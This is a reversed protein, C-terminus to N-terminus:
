FSINIKKNGKESSAAGKPFRYIIGFSYQLYNSTANVMRFKAISQFNLGIYPQIWINFGAGFNNTPTDKIGQVYSRQTYGYGYLIYPDFYNFFTSRSIDADDRKIGKVLDHVLYYFKYLDYKLSLDFSLFLSNSSTVNPIEAGNILTGNVYKNYCVAADLSIGHGLYRAGHITSPMPVLLLNSFPSTRGNDEVANMGLGVAWKMNENQAVAPNFKAAAIVACLIFVSFIKKM